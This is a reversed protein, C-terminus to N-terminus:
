KIEGFLLRFKVKLEGDNRIVNYEGFYNSVDKFMAVDPSFPAVVTLIGSLIDVFWVNQKINSIIRSYFPIHGRWTRRTLPLGPLQFCVTQTIISCDVKTKDDM